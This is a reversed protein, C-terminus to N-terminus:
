KLPFSGLWLDLVQPSAGAQSLRFPSFNFIGSRTGYWGGSVWFCPSPDFVSACTLPQAMVYSYELFCLVISKKKCKHKEFV